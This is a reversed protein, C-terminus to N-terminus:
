QAAEQPPDYPTAHRAKAVLSVVAELLCQADFLNRNADAATYNDVADALRNRAFTMKALAARILLRNEENM